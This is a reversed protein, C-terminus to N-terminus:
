SRMERFKMKINDHFSRRRRRPPRNEEPKGV